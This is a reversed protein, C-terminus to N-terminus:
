SPGASVTKVLGLGGQCSDSPLNHLLFQLEADTQWNAGIIHACPQLLTLGSTIGFALIWSSSM